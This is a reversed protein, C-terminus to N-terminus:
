KPGIFFRIANARGSRYFEIPKNIINAKLMAANIEEAIQKRNIGFAIRLPRPLPFILTSKLLRVDLGCDTLAKAIDEAFDDAEPSGTSGIEIRPKGTVHILELLKKKQEGTIRRPALRQEIKLRALKEQEAIKNAEEARANAETAVAASQSIEARLKVDELHEITLLRKSARSYLIHVVFEGGVGLVVLFTFVATWTGLTNLLAELEPKDM